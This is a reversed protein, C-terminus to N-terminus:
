QVVYPDDKTGKTDASNYKFVTDAKLNIVPRVGYGNTGVNPSAFNGDNNVILVLADSGGYDFPSMTWYSEGTYLWYGSNAKYGFGGALIVEDMTILGIPETLVKNGRSAHDKWTYYDRKYDVNNENDGLSSSCKLNAYNIDVRGRGEPNQVNYFSKYATTVKGTGRDATGEYKWWEGPTESLQRNNCFGANEDIHNLQMYESLNTSSDFWNEIQVAIDSQTDNSHTLDFDKIGSTGYYYGVFANDTYKLNFVQTDIINGGNDSPASSGVGAYILRITGDGNIRIIRWWIDDTGKKGFKVWNNDVAGRFYYSEGDDDPASCILKETGEIGNVTVEGGNETPCGNQSKQLGLDSLVDSATKKKDFYLSCDTGSTTFGKVLLGNKASNWSPTASNTCTSTSTNLVYNKMDPIDEQKYTGDEQEVFTALINIDPEVDSAEVGVVGEFDHGMDTNQVGEDPYEIVVYYYVVEGDPTATIFEDKALTVKVEETNSAIEGSSIAKGLKDLNSIDCTEYVKTGGSVQEDHRTCTAESDIKDTTKYITFKLKTNLGNRGTWILNYPVLINDGTARVWISSVERHGPLMGEADFNVRGFIELKAGSINATTVTTSAGTGQFLTRGVFYALAIGVGLLLVFVLIAVRRKKDKM